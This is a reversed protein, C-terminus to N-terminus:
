NNKKEVMKFPSKSSDTSSKSSASGPSSPSSFASDSEYSEDEEEDYDDFIDGTLYLVANRIFSSYLIKALRWDMVLRDITRDDINEAEETVKPPDFFDFFSNLTEVVEGM